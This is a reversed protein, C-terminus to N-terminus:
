LFSDCEVTAFIFLFTVIRMYYDEKQLSTAPATMDFLSLVAFCESFTCRGFIFNGAGDHRVPHSMEIYHHLKKNPLHREANSMVFAVAEVKYLPKKLRITM